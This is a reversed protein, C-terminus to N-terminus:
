IYLKFVYYHILRAIDRPVNLWVGACLRMLQICTQLSRSCARLITIQYHLPMVLTFKTSYLTDYTMGSHYEESIPGCNRYFDWAMEDIRVPVSGHTRDCALWHMPNHNCVIQHHPRLPLLLNESADVTRSCGIRSSVVNPSTTRIESIWSFEFKGNTLPDIHVCQLKSSHDWRNYDDAHVCMYTHQMLTAGVEALTRMQIAYTYVKFPHDSCPCISMFSYYIQM